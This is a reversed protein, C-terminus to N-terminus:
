AFVRPSTGTADSYTIRGVASAMYVFAKQATTISVSTNDFSLVYSAEGLGAWAETFTVAVDNASVSTVTGHRVTPTAADFERIVVKEGAAFFSADRVSGGPGFRAAECTLTWSTGAGSVSSIWASPAYGATNQTQLLLTLTGTPSNGYDWSRGMVFARTNSLGAGSTTSGRAGGYPLQPVTVLVEDGLRAGHLIISVPVDLAYWQAGFLSLVRHVLADADSLPVDAGDDTGTVARACPAISLTQGKSKATAVGGLSVFTRTSNWKDDTDSYGGKLEVRAVVGDPSLTLTGFDDGPTHNTTDISYTPTTSGAAPLRRVIIKCDSDLCLYLGHLKCEERIVDILKKPKTFSYIRSALSPVSGVIAGVESTWTAIAVDDTTIFPGGINVTANANTIISQMFEALDCGETTSYVASLEFRAQFTGACGFEPIALPDDLNMQVLGAAGVAGVDVDVPDVADHGPLTAPTIRMHAWLSFSGSTDLYFRKLPWLTQYADSPVGTYLPSYYARPMRRCQDHPVLTPGLANWNEASWACRYYGGAAVTDVPTPHYATQDIMEPFFWGDVPSGGSVDIWKPSGNDPRYFLEWGAGAGAEPWWTGGFSTLLSDADLANKIASCLAAESEFFGYLYIASVSATVASARDAGSRLGFFFALPCLASYYIGRLQTGGDVAKGITADLLAMRSQMSLSWTRSDTLEPEGALIGRWLLTGDGTTASKTLDLQSTGHGYLWCRRGAYGAPDATIPVVDTAVRDTSPVSLHFSQATTDWYPDTITAHTSDPLATVKWAVTGAHVVDGVTLGATSRVTASGGGATYDANLYAVAAGTTWGTFAQTAADAHTPFRHSSPTETIQISSLTVSLEAGAFYARENITISDSQLGPVVLRGDDMTCQMAPDSVFIVPCGEIVLRFAVAGSGTSLYEAFTSM